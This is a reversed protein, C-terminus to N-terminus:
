QPIKSMLPSYKNVRLLYMYNNYENLERKDLIIIFYNNQKANEKAGQM